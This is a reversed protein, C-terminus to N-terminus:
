LKILTVIENYINETIGTINKLDELSNYPRGDIIRQSIVEGISPLSELEKQTASNISIGDTVSSSSVQFSQSKSPIYIKENLAVVKSLNLEEHVFNVNANSTLGGALSIAEIVMMQSKGIYVGPRGVEGVVEFVMTTSSPITININDTNITPNGSPNIAVAPVNRINLMLIILVINCALSIFLIEKSNTKLFDIFREKM